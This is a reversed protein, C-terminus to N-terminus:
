APCHREAKRASLAIPESLRAVIPVGWRSFTISGAHFLLKLPLFMFELLGVM